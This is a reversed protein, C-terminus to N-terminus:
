LATHDTEKPKPEGTAPDTEGEYLDRLAGARGLAKGMQSAIQGMLNRRDLNGRTRAVQHAAVSPFTYRQFVVVMDAFAEHFAYVDPNTLSSLILHRHMGDLLAHTIEHAIIDYSLCNFVMGGPLIDGSASDVAPFYGFILAKKLPSYYANAERMGHPYIRLRRVFEGPGEHGNEEDVHPAWLAVRGLGVEFNRITTMAVAYVMQQHFQ